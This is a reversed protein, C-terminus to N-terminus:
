AQVQNAEASRGLLYLDRARSTLTVGRQKCEAVLEDREPDTLRLPVPKASLNLGRPMYSKAPLDDKNTM